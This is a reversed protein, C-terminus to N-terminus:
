NKYQGTETIIYEARKLIFQVKDDMTLAYVSGRDAREHESWAYMVKHAMSGCISDGVGNPRATYTSGDEFKFTVEQIM